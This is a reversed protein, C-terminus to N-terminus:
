GYSRRWDFLRTGSVDAWVLGPQSPPPTGDTLARVWARSSGPFRSTFAEPYRAVLARNRPTARVVWCSGVRYRGAEHGLAVALDRAEAVKRNTARVSGGIDDLRNWVETIVLARRHGSRLCVDVSRSSPAARTPLEFTAEYGAARALQLVLEQVKLHGGDIPDEEADRGWEVVLRRGLADALSIWTDLPAGGGAGRELEGIRVQSLRARSALQAQTLRRRTRALRLEEGLALAVVQAHRAARAASDAHRKRTRGQGVAM